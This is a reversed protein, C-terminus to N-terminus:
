HQGHGTHGNAMVWEANIHMWNELCDEGNSGGSM